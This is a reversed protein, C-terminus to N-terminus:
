PYPHYIEKPQAILRDIVGKAEDLTHFVPAGPLMVWYTVPEDWPDTLSHSCHEVEPYFLGMSPVERIRYKM